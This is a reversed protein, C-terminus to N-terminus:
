KLEEKISKILTKYIAKEKNSITDKESKSYCNILITKEQKIFDVYLVRAGGSKGINPLAFRLKTLGGTGQIIDGADPNKLLFTQLELLDDETLGQEGWRKSFIPTEIYVRKM